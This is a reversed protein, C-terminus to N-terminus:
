LEIVHPHPIHRPLGISLYPLSEVLRVLFEL